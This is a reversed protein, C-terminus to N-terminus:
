HKNRQGKVEIHAGRKKSFFLERLLCMSQVPVRLRYNERSSLPSFKSNYESFKFGVLDCLQKVDNYLQLSSTTYDCAGASYHGDGDFLGVLFSTQVKRSSRFIFPPIKKTLSSNGFWNRFAKGLARDHVVYDFITHNKYRSCKGFFTKLISQYVPMSSSFRIGDMYSGEAVYYGMIQALIPTVRFWRKNNDFNIVPNTGTEPINLYDGMKIRDARKWKKHSGSKVLFPHEGTIRIKIGRETVIEYIKGRWKRESTELVKKFRNKHTLVYDGKSVENINKVGKSTIISTEKTVCGVGDVHLGRVNENYAKSLIRSHNSFELETRSWTRSKNKPIFSKLLPNTVLTLRIDKLVEIAQPLTRSIILYQTNPNILAKWLFYHVFLQRTKGSSRFAMMCVRKKDEILRLWEKQFSTLKFGDKAYIIKEIFYAPNTKLKKKDLKVKKAM